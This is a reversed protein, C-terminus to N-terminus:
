RLIGDVIDGVFTYDRRTSGDGFMPVPLGQDILRTFKAIALDPRNAPWVCHLVEPGDRATRAPSSVHAGAARM